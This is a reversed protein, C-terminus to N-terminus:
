SRDSCFFRRNRSKEVAQKLEDLIEPHRLMIQLLCSLQYSPTKELKIIKAIYQDTM